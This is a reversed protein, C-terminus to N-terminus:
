LLVVLMNKLVLLCLCSTERFTNFVFSNFLCMVLKEKKGKESIFMVLKRAKKDIRRELSQLKYRRQCLDFSIFLIKNLDVSSFM